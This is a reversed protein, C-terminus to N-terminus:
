LCSSEQTERINLIPYIKKECALFFSSPLCAPHRYPFPQFLFLPRPKRGIGFAGCIRGSAGGGNRGIIQPRIKLSIPVTDNVALAEPPQFVLRLHKKGGHAVMVAGAQGVRQLHRLHGPRQGPAQPQVFIQGFGDRQPMIQAMRREAMNAFVGQVLSHGAAESM